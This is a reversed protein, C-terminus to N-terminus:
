TLRAAARAHLSCVWRSRPCARGDRIRAHAHGRARNAARSRMLLLACLPAAYHLACWHWNVLGASLSVFALDGCLPAHLVSVSAAALIDSAQLTQAIPSLTPTPSVATPSAPTLWSHLFVRGCASTRTRAHLPSCPRLRSCYVACSRAPAHHPRRSWLQRPQSRRHPCGPHPRSHCHLFLCSRSCSCPRSPPHVHPHCLRLHARARQRASVHAHTM